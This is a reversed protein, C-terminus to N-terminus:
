KFQPSQTLEDADNNPMKKVLRDLDVDSHFLLTQDDVIIQSFFADKLKAFNCQTGRFDTNDMYIGGFDFHNLNLNRLNLGSIDAAYGKSQLITKLSLGQQQRYEDNIHDIMKRYLKNWQEQSIKPKDDHFINSVLGSVPQEVSSFIQENGESMISVGKTLNSNIM